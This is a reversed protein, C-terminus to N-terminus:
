CKKSFKKYVSEFITGWRDIDQRLFEEADECWDNVDEVEDIVNSFPYSSPSCVKDIYEDPLREATNKLNKFEQQFDKIDAYLNNKEVPSIANRSKHASYRANLRNFEAQTLESFQRM